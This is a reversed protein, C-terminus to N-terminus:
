RISVTLTNATKGEVSLLVAAEGHGALSRPLRVNVQDLGAFDGQRGAYLVEADVGGIRASVESLSRVGRIGTGFLLLIVQDTEAGLDIPIAVCSGPTAGCHFTPQSTQRGDASVRLAVAAAAGQGNANASFLGPALRAIEVAGSAVAQEDIIVVVTTRGEPLSPVIFNIQGSSVFHLQAAVFSQDPRQFLLRTGALASPLPL